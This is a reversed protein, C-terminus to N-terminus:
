ETTSPRLKWFREMKLDSKGGSRRALKSTKKEAFDAAADVGTSPLSASQEAAELVEEGEAPEPIQYKEYTSKTGIKLGLKVLREDVVSDASLDRKPDYKIVWLPLPVSPGFNYLVIPKVLYQNIVYMLFKADAEIKEDRVQQHVDGRSWGGGGGEGGRGTLTQGLIVRMIANACIDDVLEKHASGM